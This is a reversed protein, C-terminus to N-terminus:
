LLTAAKSCPKDDLRGANRPDANNFIMGILPQQPTQDNPERRQVSLVQWRSGTTDQSLGQWVGQRGRVTCIEGRKTQRNKGSDQVRSSQSTSGVEGLAWYSYYLDIGKSDTQSSSTQFVRGFKSEAPRTPRKM